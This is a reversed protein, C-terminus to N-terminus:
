NIWRKHKFYLFTSFAIVFMIGVVIYFDYAHGILPTGVTNMGFLAGILTAPLMLFTTATLLKMIENTKTSLLSDNTSRLDVLIEKQDQLMEEVKLYEGM